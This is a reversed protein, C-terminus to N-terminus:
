IEDVPKSILEPAVTVNSYMTIEEPVGAMVAFPSSKIPFSIIGVVAVRNVTEMYGNFTYMFPVEDPGVVKFLEIRVPGSLISGQLPTLDNDLLLNTKLVESFAQLAGAEDIVLNLGRLEGMDLQASASRLALNLKNKVAIKVGFTQAADTILAGVAFISIVMFLALVSVSGRQDKIIM